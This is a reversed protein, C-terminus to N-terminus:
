AESGENVNKRDEKEKISELFEELFAAAKPSFENYYNM